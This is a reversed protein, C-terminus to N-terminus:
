PKASGEMSGATLLFEADALLPDDWELRLVRQQQLSSIAQRHQDRIAQEAADVRRRRQIFSLVIMAFVATPLVSLIVSTLITSFDPRPFLSLNGTFESLSVFSAHIYERYLTVIPGAMLAWFLVTGVLGSLLAFPRSAAADEIQADFITQSQEQLANIGALYASQPMTGTSEHNSLALSSHSLRHIEARFRAALPGLRDAVAAASRRRIGERVDNAAAGAQSFNRAGTYAASILSPLSGALSLVVRDWAGSTLSLVGLMTRYPFFIASTDTLLSARLRSRIAARLAPGGGVLSAAIEEPLKRAEEHLRQVAITLGPLQDSLSTHLASRFRADMAALRHVTRGLSDGQGLEALLSQQIAIVAQEGIKVEGSASTEFDPIYVPATVQSRPAARRIRGIFAEADAVVADDVESCANIVPVVLSGESASALLDVAHSRMQDRRVVMLLVSAMSLALKAMDAIDRRNDTSGPSDVLLYPTDLSFMQDGSCHLYREYRSDLNTPPLPGAWTIFETAEDANNGSRIASAVTASKVFQRMLWSKGQGTAGVIAVVMAGSARDTVISKRAEAHSDCLQRVARGAASEGLVTVSAQHMRRLFAEEPDITPHSFHAPVNV